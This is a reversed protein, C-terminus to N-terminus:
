DEDGESIVGMPCEDICEGCGICADEDDWTVVGDAIDLAEQECAEVCIGCGICEDIDFVLHSMSEGKALKVSLLAIEVVRM